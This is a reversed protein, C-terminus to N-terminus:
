GHDELSENIDGLRDLLNRQYNDRWDFFADSPNNYMKTHVGCNNCKVRHGSEIVLDPRGCACLFLKLHMMM